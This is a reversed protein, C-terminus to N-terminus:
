PYELPKNKNVRPTIEVIEVIVNHNLSIVRSPVFIRQLTGEKFKVTHQFIRLVKPVLNIRTVIWFIPCDAPFRGL